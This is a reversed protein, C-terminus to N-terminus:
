EEGRIERLAEAVNPVNDWCGRTIERLEALPDWLVEYRIMSDFHKAKTTYAAAVTEKKLRHNPYLENHKIIKLAQRLKM